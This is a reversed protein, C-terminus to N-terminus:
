SFETPMAYRQFATSILITTREHMIGSLGRLIREETITDVSSLADDLILIRPDRLVARAIATRQKQGGSLTIGKEGVMTKFGNPFGAVDETLGALDAAWRVQEETAEKVGFAINEALTASFLFTEQPVFGIQRRLDALSLHRLDVGDLHVSGSSPDLM